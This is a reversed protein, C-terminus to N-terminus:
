FLHYSIFLLFGKIIEAGRNQVIPIFQSKVWQDDNVASVTVSSIDNTPYDSVTSTSLSPYQTSSHNGWIVVNHVSAVPVSLKNAIQAKARNHDLRTLCSFNTKPITKASELLLLCNTNAPNGVVLVKVNPSARRALIEGQQHFIEANKEILDKREMGQKRPFAGVFIAIDTGSFAEEPDTSAIIQHLLPYACDELEMVVGNLIEKSMPIDLLQLIIPQNDGLMKGAAIQGVLSYAIQGAAGTVCVRVPKKTNKKSEIYPCQGTCNSLLLDNTNNLINSVNLHNVIRELREM